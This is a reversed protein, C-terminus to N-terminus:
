ILILRGMSVAHNGGYSRGSGTVFHHVQAPVTAAPAQPTVNPRTDAGKGGIWAPWSWYMRPGWRASPLCLPTPRGRSLPHSSWVEALIDEARLRPIPYPRHPRLALSIYSGRGRLRVNPSLNAGRARKAPPARGALTRPSELPARGGEQEGGGGEARRKGEKGREERPRAAPRVGTSFDISRMTSPNARAAWSSMSLLRRRSSFASRLHSPRGGIRYGVRGRSFGGRGPPREAFCPRVRPGEVGGRPAPPM